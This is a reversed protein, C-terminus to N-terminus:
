KTSLTLTKSSSHKAGGVSNFTALSMLITGNTPIIADDPNGTDVKRALELTWTGNAWTSKAKIDAISGSPSDALKYRPMIDQEKVDYKASKYLKPGEDSMRRVYVVGNDGKFKKAKEFPQADIKWWKDHAIGNPDSRSAKWHWVDATFSKGSLKNADFDGGMAFSLALRDEQEKTRKYSVTEEDWKYPKHLRNENGDKWVALFYIMDGNIAAKLNVSKTGDKGDLMVETGTVSAWDAANGDLTIATAKAATITEGAHALHASGLLVCTGALTTLLKSKMKM